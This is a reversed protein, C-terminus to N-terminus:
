KYFKGSFYYNWPDAGARVKTRVNELLEKTLGVGPHTFGAEDTVETITPLYDTFISTTEAKVAVPLVTLCLQTIMVITTICSLLKKVKIKM